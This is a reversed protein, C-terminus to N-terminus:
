QALQQQIHELGCAQALGASADASFPHRLRGRARSRTDVQGHAAGAPETRHDGAGPAGKDVESGPRPGELMKGISLHDSVGRNHLGSTKAGPEPQGHWPVEQAGWGEEEGKGRVTALSDVIPLQKADAGGSGGGDGSAKWNLMEREVPWRTLTHATGLSVGGLSCRLTTRVVRAFSERRLNNM